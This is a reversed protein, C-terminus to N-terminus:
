RYLWVWSMQTAAKTPLMLKSAQAIACKGIAHYTNQRKSAPMVPAQNITKAGAQAKRCIGVAALFLAEANIKAPMPMPMKNEAKRKGWMGSKPKFSVHNIKPQALTKSLMSM